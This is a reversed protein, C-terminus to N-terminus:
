RGAIWAGGAWLLGAVLMIMTLGLGDPQLTLSCRNPDSPDYYVPVREGPQYPAIKREMSERMSTSVDGTPAIRSGRYVRGMVTFEYAIVPVFTGPSHTGVEAHMGRRHELSASLIDGETCEWHRVADMTLYIRLHMILGIIAVALGALMAPHNAGFDSIEALTPM